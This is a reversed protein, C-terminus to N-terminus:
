ARKRPVFDKIVYDYNINKPEPISVNLKKYASKLEKNGEVKHEITQLIEFCEETTLTIKHKM